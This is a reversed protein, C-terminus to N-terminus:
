QTLPSKGTFHSKMRLSELGQVGVGLRCVMGGHGQQLLAFCFLVLVRLVSQSPM